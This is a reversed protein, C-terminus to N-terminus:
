KDYNKTASGIGARGEVQFSRLIHLHLMLKFSSTAYYTCNYYPTPRRYRVRRFTRQLEAPSRLIVMYLLVM